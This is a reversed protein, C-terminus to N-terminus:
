FVAPALAATRMRAESTVVMAARGARNRSSSASTLGLSIRSAAM